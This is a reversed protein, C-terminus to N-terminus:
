ARPLVRLMAIWSTKSCHELVPQVKKTVRKVCRLVCKREGSRFLIVSYLFNEFLSLWAFDALVVAWKLLCKSTHLFLRFAVHFSIPLRLGVPQIVGDLITPFLLIDVSLASIQACKLWYKIFTPGCSSLVMGCFLSFGISYILFVGKYWPKTTELWLLVLLCVRRLNPNASLM